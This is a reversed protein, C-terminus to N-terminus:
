CGPVDNPQDCSANQLLPGIGSSAVVAVSQLKDEEQRQRWRTSSKTHSGPFRHVCDIIFTTCFHRVGHSCFTGAGSSLGSTFAVIVERLNAASYRYHIGKIRQFVVSTKPSASKPPFVLQCFAADVRASQLSLRLNDRGSVPPPLRRPDSSPAVISKISTCNLSM